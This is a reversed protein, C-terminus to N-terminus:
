HKLRTLKEANLITIHSNHMDILGENRFDSLTRIVFEM